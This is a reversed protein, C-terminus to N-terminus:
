RSKAKEKPQPITVLQRGRYYGCSTCIRHPMIAAACQPCKTLSSLKLKWHTRSKDRRSKSHKRKPLAM